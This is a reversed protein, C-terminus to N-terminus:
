VKYICGVHRIEVLSELEKDFRDRKSVLDAIKQLVETNKTTLTTMEDQTDNLEQQVVQIKEEYEKEM